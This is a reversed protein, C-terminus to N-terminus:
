PTPVVLGDCMPGDLIREVRADNRDVCRDDCADLDFGERRESREMCRAQCTLLVAEVNLLKSMCRNPDPPVTSEDPSSCVSRTREIRQLTNELVTDCRATCEQLFEEAVEEGEKQAEKEARNECRSICRYHRGERRVKIAECRLDEAIGAGATGAATLTGIFIMAILATRKM